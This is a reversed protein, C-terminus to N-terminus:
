SICHVHSLWRPLPGTFSNALHQRIPPYLSFFWYVPKLCNQLHPPPVFLWSMPNRKVLHRHVRPELCLVKLTVAFGLLHMM